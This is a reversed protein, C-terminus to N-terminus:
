TTLVIADGKNVMTGAPPLQNLVIGGDGDLEMYLGLDKLIQYAETLSKGILNPMCVPEVVENSEKIPSINLLKFLKSLIEKSKVYLWTKFLTILFSVTLLLILTVKILFMM